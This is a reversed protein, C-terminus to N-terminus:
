ANDKPTRNKKIARIAFLSIGGVTVVILGLGIVVILIVGVSPGPPAIDTFVALEPLVSLLIVSLLFLFNTKM